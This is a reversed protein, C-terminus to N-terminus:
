SLTKNLWAKGFRLDRDVTPVSVGLAEAIEERELGGFYAMEITRAAREDQGALKKLGEHLALVELEPGGSGMGDAQSLTVHVADGGRKDASRARAHDVLVARMKLAAIAMFHARDRWDVEGEILRLLAENVLPLLRDLADADGGRWRRLLVTVDAAPPLM